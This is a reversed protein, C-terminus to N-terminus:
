GHHPRVSRDDRAAVPQVGARRRRERRRGGLAGTRAAAREVLDLLDEVHLLDRVQKGSGGFGIYRSRAARLPPRADLVHVRGSGGQGDALARRDRRLPRRGRPLGYAAAYEEILLEAALKTAGYLTRAGALPFRRPSGAALLRGRAAARRLLEFRTDCSATASGRSRPWRICAARRSSCSSRATGAPWSSATTPASCTRTCSTTRAATSAPSCRRSRPASSSRTSSASRSCTRRARARRRARFRGRRARAAAPEAGLRAALPQRSATIGVRPPARGARGRPERRHVRRGGDGARSLGRM